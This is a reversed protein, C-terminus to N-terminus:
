MQYCLETIELRVAYSPRREANDPGYDITERNADATAVPIHPAHRLGADFHKSSSACASVVRDPKFIGVAAQFETEFSFDPGRSEELERGKLRAIAWLIEDYTAKILRGIRPFGSYNLCEQVPAEIECTFAQSGSEKLLRGRQRLIRRTVGEPKILM